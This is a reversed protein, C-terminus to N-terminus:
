RDHAVSARYGAMRPIGSNINGIWPKLALLNLIDSTYFLSGQWLEAYVTRVFRLDQPYDVTWRLHSLDQDHNISRLRFREPHNWIYPTVHERESQRTAEFVARELAHFSFVEIDLGEPYSPTLTNSAYDLDPDAAFCAIVQDAIRPDKLPDDATIRVITDAQIWKATDYYRRLVDEEEGAFARVGWAEAEAAVARDEKTRTTAVAIADIARSAQVRKIVHGLMSRGSIDKLVKGPLRHSGLRAQIIAAIM